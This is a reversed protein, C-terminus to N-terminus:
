WTPLIPEHALIQYCVLAALVALLCWFLLALKAVTSRRDLCHQVPQEQTQGQPETIVVLSVETVAAAAPAEDPDEGDHRKSEDEKTEKGGVSTGACPVSIGAFLAIGHQRGLVFVPDPGHELEDHWDQPQSPTWVGTVYMAPDFTSSTNSGSGSVGLDHQPPLLPPTLLQFSAADDDDPHLEQPNVVVLTSSVTEEEDEDDGEEDVMGEAHYPSVAQTPLLPHMSTRATAVTTMRRDERCAVM